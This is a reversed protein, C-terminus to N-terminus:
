DNGVEAELRFKPYLETLEIMDFFRTRREEFLNQYAAERLRGRNQQELIFRAGAAADQALVERLEHLKSNPL